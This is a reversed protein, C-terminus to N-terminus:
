IYIINDQILSLIKEGYDKGLGDKNENFVFNFNRMFMHKVRLKM